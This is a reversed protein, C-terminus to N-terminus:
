YVVNQKIEMKHMYEYDSLMERLLHMMAYFSSYWFLHLHKEFAKKCIFIALSNEFSTVIRM